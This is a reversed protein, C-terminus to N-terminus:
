KLNELNKAEQLAWHKLRPVTLPVGVPLKLM